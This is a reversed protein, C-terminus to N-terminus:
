ARAIRPGVLAKCAEVYRRRAEPYAAHAERQKAVPEDLAEGRQYAWAFPRRAELTQMCTVFTRHVPHDLGVRIAIRDEVYRVRGLARRWAQFGEAAASDERPCGQEYLVFLREFARKTEGLAQAGEDLVERLERTLEQQHDAKQRSRSWWASVGPGVVGSVVIATIAVETEGM